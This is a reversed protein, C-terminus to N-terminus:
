LISFIEDLTKIKYDIRINEPMPKDDPDYWCCLIGANSGGQMDSTLSDGIIIVEDKKYSGIDNWVANFFAIDPKEAGLKESIFVGDFLEGLGSKALKREQATATGNTVAYQLVKGKLNKVVEYGDDNFCVNDGLRFQYERNFGDVDSFDIKESAFFEEFRGRLVQAKTIEGRELRKWYGDNIASYRAIMEDTCEGLGFVEFCKKISAYEAKKFNLLTGDIDTAILRVPLQNEM